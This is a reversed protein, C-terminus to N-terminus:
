KTAAKLWEVNGTVGTRDKISSDLRPLDYRGLRSVGAAASLVGIVFLPLAVCLAASWAPMLQLLAHYGALLLFFIGSMTVAAGLGILYAAWRAERLRLYFESQALQIEYRLLEQANRVVESLVESVPREPADVTRSM